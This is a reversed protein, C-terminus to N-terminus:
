DWLTIVNLEEVADVDPLIVPTGLPLFVLSALDQNADLVAEIYGSEDGYHRRCIIDVTDGAVSIITEAM